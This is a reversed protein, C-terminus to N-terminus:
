AKHMGYEELKLDHVLSVTTDEYYFVYSDDDLLSGRLDEARGQGRRRVLRRGARRRLHPRPAQWGVQAAEHSAQAGM